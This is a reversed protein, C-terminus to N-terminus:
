FAFRLHKAVRNKNASIKKANASWGFDLQFHGLKQVNRCSKHHFLSALQGTLSM